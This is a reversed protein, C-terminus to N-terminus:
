RVNDIEKLWQLYIQYAIQATMVPPVSMGCLWLLRERSPAKYDQPFTGCCKIERENMKRPFDYVLMDTTTLTPCVDNGHVWSRTFGSTKGDIRRRTDAMTRDTPRRNDYHMQEGETLNNQTDSRDIVERFYIPIEKFNLKLRPLHYEQLHGIIFARERKQPVGMTASNLVFVQCVYGAQTLRNIIRKLYSKANGLTLGKVNELLFCKPRLKVITDCYVFVLDDLTQLAQGEAFQKEKGWAGERSGAMSFTSCPPSGDLLDIGFLEDPINTRENFRRLDEVFLYEPHHNERYIAAVKEDIEVGGLHHYGALKYGMSSGGGCIFTGFVKKQHNEIGKAPFGDALNWSYPFRHNQNKEM